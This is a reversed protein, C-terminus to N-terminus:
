ALVEKLGEIDEVRKYKIDDTLPYATVESVYNKLEFKDLEFSLMCAPPLKFINNFISM